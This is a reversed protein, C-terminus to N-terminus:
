RVKEVTDFLKNQGCANCYLNLKSTLGYNLGEYHLSLSHPVETMIELMKSLEKKSVTGSNYKKVMLLKIISICQELVITYIQDFLTLLGERFVCKNSIVIASVAYHTSL